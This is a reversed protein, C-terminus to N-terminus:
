FGFESEEVFRESAEVRVPSTYMLLKGDEDLSGSMEGSLEIKTELYSELSLTIQGELQLSATAVKGNAHVEDGSSDIEIDIIANREGNIETVKSLTLKALGVVNELDRRLFANVFLPPHTWSTGVAIEGKPMSARQDYILDSAVARREPDSAVLRNTLEYSWAAGDYEGHVQFGRIPSTNYEENMEDGEGWRASSYDDVIRYFTSVKRGNEFTPDYEDFAQFRSFEILLPKTAAGDDGILKGDFGTFAVTRRIHKGPEYKTGDLRVTETSSSTNSTTECGTVALFVVVIASLSLFRKKMAIPRELKPSGM